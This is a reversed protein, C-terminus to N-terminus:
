RTLEDLFGNVQGVMIAEVHPERNIAEALLDGLFAPLGRVDYINPTARIARGAEFWVKPAVLFNVDIPDAGTDFRCSGTQPPAEFLEPAALASAVVDGGVDVALFCEAGLLVGATLTELELRGKNGMRYSVRCNVPKAATGNGLGALCRDVGELELSGAPGAPAAALALALGLALAGTLGCLRSRGLLRRVIM